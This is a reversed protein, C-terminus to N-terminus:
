FSRVIEVLVIWGAASAALWLVVALRPSVMPHGATAFVAAGRPLRRSFSASTTGAPELLRIRRVRHARRLIRALATMDIKEIVQPSAAM